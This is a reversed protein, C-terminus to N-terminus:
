QSEGFSAQESQENRTAQRHCGSDQAYDVDSWAAATTRASPPALDELGATASKNNSGGGSVAGNIPVFCGRSPCSADIGNVCVGLQHCIQRATLIGSLCGEQRTENAQLLHGHM